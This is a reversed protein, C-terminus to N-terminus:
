QGDRGTGFARSVRNAQLQGDHASDSTQEWEHIVHPHRLMLEQMLYRTPSHAHRSQYLQM